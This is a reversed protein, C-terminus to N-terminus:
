LEWLNGFNNKILIGRKLTAQSCTLHAVLPTVLTTQADTKTRFHTSTYSVLHKM